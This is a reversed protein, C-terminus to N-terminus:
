AGVRFRWGYSGVRAPRDAQTGIWYLVTASWDGPEFKELEKNPGPRFSYQSLPKVIDLQDLPIEQTAFGPGSLVLVGTLGDRLDATITDQQRILEGPRPTLEDVATPYGVRENRTDTDSHNLLLVGLSIVVALTVIVIAVRGPHEILKKRPASAPTIVTPASPTGTGAM